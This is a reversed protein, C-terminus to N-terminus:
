LILFLKLGDTSLEGADEEGQVPSSDSLKRVKNFVKVSNQKPGNPECLQVDYATVHRGKLVPSIWKLRLWM